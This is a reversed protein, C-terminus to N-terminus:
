ETWDQLPLNSVQGFARDSTVLVASAAKAHAAILMDIPALMRGRSELEARTAGYVKATASDWALVDVRQFLQAAAEHLSRADPRKALGFFIEGQTVASICLSAMPVEQVRRSVASHRKFLHCVTNTDLLYRTM